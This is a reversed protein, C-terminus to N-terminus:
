FAFIQLAAAAVLLWIFKFKSIEFRKNAAWCCPSVGALRKALAEEAAADGALKAPAPAAVELLAKLSILRPGSM